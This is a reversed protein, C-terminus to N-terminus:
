NNDALVANIDLEQFYNADKISLRGYLPYSECFIDLDTQYIKIATHAPLVHAHYTPSFFCVMKEGLNAIVGLHMAGCDTTYFMDAKTILYLSQSLSLEGAFNYLNAPNGLEDLYKTYNERDVNGGLLIVNHKSLVGRILQLIKAQPLMRCGGSEYQNNGGSNVIIVFRKLNLTTLKQQIILQDEISVSLDLNIDASNPYGLGSATLLDLYYLGHYRKVNGYSVYKNLLFRSVSERVYGVKTAAFLSCLLNLQWSKGLNFIYDYDQRRKWVFKIFSIIGTLSFIKDDLAIINDLNQNNNLAARFPKAVCYDIKAAPLLQRLQRILPTTMLIDGLAGRKILLIRTTM